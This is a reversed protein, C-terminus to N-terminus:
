LKAEELFDKTQNYVDSYEKISDIAEIAIDYAEEAARCPPNIWFEETLDIGSIFDKLLEAAEQAIKRYKQIENIDHRTQMQMTKLCGMIAQDWDNKDIM